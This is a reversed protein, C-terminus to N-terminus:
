MMVYALKEHLMHELYYPTLISLLHPAWDNVFRELWFAKAFEWYEPYWGAMEWDIIAKVHGDKVMINRPYFDGHTFVIAYKKASMMGRIYPEM